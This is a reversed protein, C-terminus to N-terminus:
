IVIKKRSFSIKISNIILKIGVLIFLLPIIIWWRFSEIMEKISFTFGLQYLLISIGLFLLSAGFYLTFIDFKMRDFCGLINLVILVFSLGVFTFFVGLLILPSSHNTEILTAEEPHNPDYQVEKTSNMDPLYNTGYDTKLTYQKGDVTYHYFLQYTYQVIEGNKENGGYIGYDYFYGTTTQTNKAKQFNEYFEKIGFVLMLIGSALLTMVLIGPIILYLMDAISKDKKDILEKLVVVKGRRYM